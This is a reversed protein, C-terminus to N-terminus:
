EWPWKSRAAATAKSLAARGAQMMQMEQASMKVPEDLEEDNVYANFEDVSKATQLKQFMFEASSRDLGQNAVLWEVVADKSGQEQVYEYLSKVVVKPIKPTTM